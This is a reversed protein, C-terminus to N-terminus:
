CSYIRFYPHFGVCRRPMYTLYTCVRLYAHFHTFKHMYRHTYINHQFVCLSLSPFSFLLIYLFLFVCVCGCVCVFVCV